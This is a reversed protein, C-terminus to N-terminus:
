DNLTEAPTLRHMAPAPSSAAKSREFGFIAAIMTTAKEGSEARRNTSQAEIDVIRDWAERQAEAFEDRGQEDLNFWRWMMCVGPEILKQARLAGLCEAMVAHLIVAAYEQKVEHPLAEAEEDDVVPLEVSRYFHQDVNRIKEVKAVEIAGSRLLQKLHYSITPLSWPTRAALQAATHVGENLLCQIEIRIRHALAYSVADEVSRDRDSKVTAPLSPEKSPKDQINLGLRDYASRQNTM